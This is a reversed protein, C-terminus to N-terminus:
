ATQDAIPQRRDALATPTLRGAAPWAHRLMPPAQVVTGHLLEQPLFSCNFAGACEVLVRGFSSWFEVLVRGIVGWVSSWNM